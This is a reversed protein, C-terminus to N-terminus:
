NLRLDMMVQRGVSQEFVGVRPMCYLLVELLDGREGPAFGIGYVSRERTMLRGALRQHLRYVRACRGEEATGSSAKLTEVIYLRCMAALAEVAHGTLKVERNETLRLMMGTGM